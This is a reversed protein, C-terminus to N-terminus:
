LSEGSPARDAFWRDPMVELFGQAADTPLAAAAVFGDPRVLHLLDPRLRGEPDPPFAHAELRLREGLARAADVTPGYAHVQWSASRLVDHNEGTWPLRRGVVRGRRGRAAERAADSMWYHVRLQAVYAFGRSAGPLRPVLRLTIPALARVVIPRVHRSRWGTATVAAFVRDTTRVLRLAVPRREAQYRDLWADTARGHVVDALRFALNHADQLGTNMGQGGVPSHVHAADGALLVPGDRFREAVRHHSRYTAFWDLHEYTVGFVRDLVARTREEASGAVDDDGEVDPLAGILRFRSRAMPFALALHERGTRVTIAGAAVGRVGSADAVTFTRDNTGGEFAIRRLTRVTSSGGDAGVCFRADLTVPGDPGVATARVTTAGDGGTVDDLATLRHGYRVEGGLRRLHELLLAENESQELVHVGPYPTLGTGLEGLPVPPFSCREFGPEVRTAITARALVAHAIGLQDYLEMSRAQVVLARSQRTPGDEADVVICRVGLRTLWCALMLGTPGAGVVLVDTSAADDDAM